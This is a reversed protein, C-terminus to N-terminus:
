PQYRYLAVSESGVADSAQGFGGMVYIANGVVVAGLGHSRYPMAPLTTWAQSQPDYREVANSVQGPTSEGGLAYLRGGLAVVALSGRATPMAPAAAWQGSAPTYVELSSLSQQDNARIGPTRGGLVYLQGDVVAAGAANRATSIPAASSWSQSSPDFVMHSAVSASATNSYNWGGVLHLRGELVAAASAFSIRPLSPGARWQATAPEYVQLATRAEGGIAYLREASALAAVNDTGRPLPTGSAWRDSAIDYVMVARRTDYGGLVYIKGGLAAVGFKAVAAPMDALRSWGAPLEPAPAPARTPAPASVEAVASSSGGGCASVLGLLLVSSTVTRRKM